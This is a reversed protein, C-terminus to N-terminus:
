ATKLHISLAMLANSSTTVVFKEKDGISSGAAIAVRKMSDNKRRMYTM